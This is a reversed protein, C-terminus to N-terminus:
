WQMQVVSRRPVVCSRVTRGRRVVLVPPRSLAKIRGREGKGDEEGEEEGCGWDEERGGSPWM